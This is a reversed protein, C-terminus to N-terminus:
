PFPLLRERLIDASNSFGNPDLRRGALAQDFRMIESRKNLSQAWFGEWFTTRQSVDSPSNCFGDAPWISPITSVIRKSVL